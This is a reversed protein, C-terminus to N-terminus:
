HENLGAPKTGYKIDVSLFFKRLMDFKQTCYEGVDLKDYKSKYQKCEFCIELYDIVKGKKNLFIIGNRPEYCSHGMAGTNPLTKKYDTNYIINTLKNIENIGLTKVEILTSYDLSDGIIVLGKQRQIEQTTLKKAIKSTDTDLVILQNPQGAGDFSVALIKAAKSYPYMKLRQATAYKNTFVCDDFWPQYGKVSSRSHVIQYIIKKHRPGTKKIHRSTDATFTGAYSNYSLGMLLFLCFLLKPKM